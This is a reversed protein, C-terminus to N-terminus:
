RWWAQLQEKSGDAIMSEDGLLIFEWGARGAAPTFRGAGVRSGAKSGKEEEGARGRGALLCAM